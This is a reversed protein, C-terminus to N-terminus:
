IVSTHYLKLLVREAEMLANQGTQTELTWSETIRIKMKLYQQWLREHKVLNLYIYLLNRAM